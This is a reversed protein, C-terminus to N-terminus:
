IGLGVDILLSAHSTSSHNTLSVLTAPLRVAQGLQKQLANRLETAALSDVGAEMLADQPRVSVGSTQQVSSIVMAEVASYMAGKDQGAISAVFGTADLSLAVSEASQAGDAVPEIKLYKFASLFAPVVGNINGLFIPWIMPSMGMVSAGGTGSMALEMALMGHEVRVAGLGIQELADLVGSGVAMGVGAWAGWQVSSAALGKDRRLKVLGDLWANAAAYNTQGANGVLAAVSSFMVFQDLETGDECSAQHLSWAAQAKPAWVQQLGKQTQMPLLADRLIGASHIVGATGHEMLKTSERDSAADCLEVQVSSQSGLSSLFEWQQEAGKTISGSRSLLALQSSGCETLWVATLMGIGGTGGTMALCKDGSAMQQQWHANDAAALVVKGISVTNHVMQLATAADALQSFSHVPLTQTEDATKSLTQLAAGYWCPDITAKSIVSLISYRVAYSAMQARKRINRRGLEAFCGVANTAVPAKALCLDQLMGFEPLEDCKYEANTDILHCYTDAILLGDLQISNIATMVAQLASFGDNPLYSKMVNPMYGTEELINCNLASTDVHIDLCQEGFLLLSVCLESLVNRAGTREDLHDVMYTPKICKGPNDVMLQILDKTTQLLEPAPVSLTVEVIRDDSFTHVEDKRWNHPKQRPECVMFDYPTDEHIDIPEGVATFVDADLWCSRKNKMLACRVMAYGTAYPMLLPVVDILHVTAASEVVYKPWLCNGGAAFTMTTMAMKSWTYLPMAPDGWGKDHMVAPAIVLLDVRPNMKKGANIVNYTGLINSNILAKLRRPDYDHYFGRHAASSCVFLMDLSRITAFTADISEENSVDMSRVEVHVGREKFLSQIHELRQMDRAVIVVNAGSAALVTVTGLGIGRSGGVVMCTKGAVEKIKRTEMWEFTEEIVVPTAIRAQQEPRALNADKFTSGEGLETEDVPKAVDKKMIPTMTLERTKSSPPMLSISASAYNTAASTNVVLDIQHKTGLMARCETLFQTPDRSSSVCRVDRSCLFALKEPSGATAFAKAGAKHVRQVALLGVGGTAAHMLVNSGALMPVVEEQASWAASWATPMTSAEEFRWQSPMVALLRSDTAAYSQVGGFALGFVHTAKGEQLVIGSCDNAVTIDTGLTSMIDHFNLGVAKIQVLTQTSHKLELQPQVRVRMNDVYISTPKDIIKAAVTKHLKAERFENQNNIALQAENACCRMLVVMGVMAHASGALSVSKVLQSKKEMNITKALGWHASNVSADNQMVLWVATVSSAAVQVARLVNSPVVGCNLWCCLVGASSLGSIVEALQVVAVSDAGVELMSTMDDVSSTRVMTSGQTEDSSTHMALNEWVVDYMHQGSREVELQGSKLYALKAGGAVRVVWEARAETLFFVGDASTELGAFLFPRGGHEADGLVGAHESADM